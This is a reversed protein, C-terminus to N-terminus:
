GRRSSSHIEENCRRKQKHSGKKWITGLERKANRHVLNPQTTGPRLSSPYGLVLPRPSGEAGYGIERNLRANSAPAIANRFLLSISRDTSGSM